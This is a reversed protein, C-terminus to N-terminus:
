PILRMPLLKLCDLYDISSEWVSTCVLYACRLSQLFNQVAKVTTERVQSLPIDFFHPRIVNNHVKAKKLNGRDAMFGVHDSRLSELTRSKSQPRQAQPIQVQDSTIECWACCHRGVLTHHQSQIYIYCTCLLVRLQTSVVPGM